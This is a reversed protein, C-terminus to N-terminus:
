RQLLWATVKLLRLHTRFERDRRAKPLALSAEILNRTEALADKKDRDSGTLVAQLLKAQQQWVQFPRDSARNWVARGYIERMIANIEDVMAAKTWKNGM